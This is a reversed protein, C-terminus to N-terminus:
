KQERIKRELQIVARKLKVLDLPIDKYKLYKSKLRDKIYTDTLLEVGKKWYKKNYGVAKEPNHKSWIKQHASKEKILREKNLTYYKKAYGRNCYVCVISGNKRIYCDDKILPGHKKCTKVIM